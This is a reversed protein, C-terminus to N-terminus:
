SRRGHCNKYKKGSGCPCPDNPAVNAYSPKNGRKSEIGFHDWGDIGFVQTGLFVNKTETNPGVSLPAGNLVKLSSCDAFMSEVSLARSFDMRSIDIFEINACGSFMGKFNLGSTTVFHSTNVGQMAICYAFMESYDQVKSVDFRSVDIIDIKQCNRFMAHMDVAKSTDFRYVDLDSLECCGDFMVSFDTASSTVFRSVDIAKLANCMQFMARFSMVCSTDFFSVNLTELTFCGCFMYDMYCVNSTDFGSVDISKLSTCLRFMSNMLQVHSTDFHTVDVYELSSCQTFLFQMDTVQSTDLNEIGYLKKLRTCKYFWAGMTKPAIKQRFYVVEIEKWPGGAVRGDESLDKNSMDIPNGVMKLQFKEGHLSCRSLTCGSEDSGFVLLDMKKDSYSSGDQRYVKYMAAFVGTKKPRPPTKEPAAEYRQRRGVRSLEIARDLWRQIDEVKREEPNWRTCIQIAESLCRDGESAQRLSDPLALGHRKDLMLFGYYESDSIVRNGCMPGLNTLTARLPPRSWTRLTYLLAGTSWIDVEKENRRKYFFAHEKSLGPDDVFGSPFVEPAAYSPTGLRPGVCTPTVNDYEHRSQGYDIVYVWEFEEENTLRVFVNNLSLDAHAVRTADYQRAIINLLIKGFRAVERTPFPESRSVTITALSCAGVIEDMVFAPRIFSEGSEYDEAVVGYAYARPVHWKGQEMLGNLGVLCRFENHLEKWSKEREYISLAYQRIDQTALTVGHDNLAKVVCLGPLIGNRQIHYITGYSGSPGDTASIPSIEKFGGDLLAENTGLNIFRM